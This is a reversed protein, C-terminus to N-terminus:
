SCQGDYVPLCTAVSVTITSIGVAYTSTTHGVSEQYGLSWGIILLDLIPSWLAFPSAYHLLLMGLGQGFIM